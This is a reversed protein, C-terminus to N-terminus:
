NFKVKEKTTMEKRVRRVNERLDLTGCRGTICKRTM